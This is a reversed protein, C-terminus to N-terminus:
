LTGPGGVTSEENLAKRIGIVLDRGEIRAETELGVNVNVNASGAAAPQPAPQAPQIMSELKSLPMVAESETGEGVMALTQKEVIGGEALGPIPSNGLAAGFISSFSANSVGLVPGLVTALLAASTLRGIVQELVQKAIDGFNSFAQELRGFLSETQSLKKNVRDLEKSLQRVQEFNGARRAQRLNQQIRRRRDRLSQLRRPDAFLADGFASGIDSTFDRLSEIAANRLAEAQAKAAKMEERAAQLRAIFNRAEENNLVDFQRRTAEILSNVDSVSDAASAAARLGSLGVDTTQISPSPLSPTLTELEAAGAERLEVDFGTDAATIEDLRRKIRRLKQITENVKSDPILDPSQEELKLLEDTAAQRARRIQRVMEEENILGRSAKERAVAVQTQMRSLAERMSQVPEAVEGGGAGDFQVQEPDGLTPTPGSDELQSLVARAMLLKENVFRQFAAAFGAFLSTAPGGFTAVLQQKVARLDQQAATYQQRLEDLEDIQGSALTDAAVAEQLRQFEEAQLAFIRALREGAEGGAVQELTLARQQATLQAAKRRVLEFVEATNLGELQEMSIGLRDFAERAEGTGERAEEVRLALEKFADRISDLDVTSDLREAVLFLQQVRQAAVGSQAEAVALQQGTEAVQAEFDAMQKTVAAAAGGVTVIGSAVAGTTGVLRTLKSSTGTAVSGLGLLSGAAGDAEGGMDELVSEARVFEDANAGGFQLGDLIDAIKEGEDGMDRLTNITRELDERFAEVEADDFSDPLTGRADADIISVYERAEDVLSQMSVRAEEVGLSEKLDTTRLQDLVEKVGLLAATGGLTGAGGGEIQGGIDIGADQTTFSSLAGSMADIREMVVDSSDEFEEQLQQASEQAEEGVSSVAEEADEMQRSVGSSADTDGMNELDSSAEQAAEGVDETDSTLREMDRRLADLGSEDFQYELSETPM